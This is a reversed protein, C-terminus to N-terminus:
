REIERECLGYLAIELDTNDIIVPRDFWRPFDTSVLNKAVPLAMEEDKFGFNV